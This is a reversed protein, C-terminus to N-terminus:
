GVAHVRVGVEFWIGDVKVANCHQQKDSQSLETDLITNLVYYLSGTGPLNFTYCVANYDTISHFHVSCLFGELLIEWAENKM